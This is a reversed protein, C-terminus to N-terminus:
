SSSLSFLSLRFAFRCAAIQGFRWFREWWVIIWVIIWLSAFSHGSVGGSKTPSHIAESKKKWVLLFLQRDGKVFIQYEHTKRWRHPSVRGLCLGHLSLRWFKQWTACGKSPDQQTECYVKTTVPMSAFFTAFNTNTKEQISVTVKKISGVLIFLISSQVAVWKEM